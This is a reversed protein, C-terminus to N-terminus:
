ATYLDRMQKEMDYFISCSLQKNFSEFDVQREKEVKKYLANEYQEVFWMEKDFYLSALWTNEELHYVNIMMRWCGEFEDVSQSDYVAKALLKKIDNYDRHSGQPAVGGMCALWTKFLWVFTKTDESSILGCGLLISHGHHNVGVFPAFPMSYKNTLYTTDFTVVDSFEEYAARSRPDAWFVNMLRGKDDWEILWSFGQNNAQMKLFYNQVADVDGVGLRMRRVKSIHNRADRELFTLNDHGGAGIVFANHCKNPRIGAIDNIELQRMVILSLRQDVVINTLVDCTYVLYRHKGDSDKSIYRRKIYFGKVQGYAKYFEFIDNPSNFLMGVMPVNSTDSETSFKTDDFNLPNNDYEVETAAVMNHSSSDSSSQMAVKFDSLVLVSGM